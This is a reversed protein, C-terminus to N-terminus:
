RREMHLQENYFGEKESVRLRREQNSARGVQEDGAGAVWQGVGSKEACRAAHRRRVGNGTITREGRQLGQGAGLDMDAGPPKEM